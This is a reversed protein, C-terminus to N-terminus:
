FSHPKAWFSFCVLGYNFLFAISDFSTPWLPASLFLAFPDSHPHPFSRSSVRQRSIHPCQPQGSRLSENLRVLNRCWFRVTEVLFSPASAGNIDPREKSHLVVNLFSGRM